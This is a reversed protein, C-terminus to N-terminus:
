GRGRREFEEIQSLIYIVVERGGVNLILDTPDTTRSIFSSKYFKNQLDHLVMAGADSDIFISYYAKLLLEEKEEETM